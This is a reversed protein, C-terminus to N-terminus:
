GVRVTGHGRYLPRVLSVLNLQIQKWIRAVGTKSDKFKKAPTVRKDVFASTTPRCPFTYRSLLSWRLWHGAHARPIWDRKAARQYPDYGSLCSANWRVHAPRWHDPMGEAFPTM